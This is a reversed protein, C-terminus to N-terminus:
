PPEDGNNIATNSPPCKRTRVKGVSLLPMRAMYTGADDDHDDFIASHYIKSDNFEADGRLGYRDLFAIWKKGNLACLDQAM